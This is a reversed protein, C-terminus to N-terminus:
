SRAECSVLFHHEAEYGRPRHDRIEAAHELVKEVADAFEDMRAKGFPPNLDRQGLNFETASLAETVPLEAEWDPTAGEPLVYPGCKGDRLLRQFLPRRHVPGPTWPRGEADKVFNRMSVYQSVPVGEAYLADVFEQRSIGHVEPDFLGTWQHYVHYAGERQVPPTIGPVKALRASLYHANERRYANIVDLRELFEFARVACFGDLRWNNGYGGTSALELIEPNRARMSIYSPHQGGLMAREFADRDDTTVVGGGSSSLPKVGSFSFASLDALAGTKQGHLMAGTSQCADDVTKLGHKRAIANIRDYAAAQGYLSVGLIAKTRSSIKAEIRDPDMMYTEPEVDVFIPVANLGLVSTATCYWTHSVTIVEDGPEVGAGLLASMIASTGSSCPLGFQVGCYAAFRDAFPVDPFLKSLQPSPSVSPKGGFLALKSM